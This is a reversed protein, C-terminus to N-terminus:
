KRDKNKPRPIRAEENSIGPKEELYWQLILAAAAADKKQRIEKQDKGSYRLLQEAMDTSLREDCMEIPVQTYGSLQETFAQTKEAQTGFGGDLLRPLGVIIREIRNDTVISLIEEFENGNGTREITAFASALIGLPDCIAVGIRKDGVDLGLM